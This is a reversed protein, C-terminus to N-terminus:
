SGSNTSAEGMEGSDGERRKESPRIGEVVDEKDEKTPGVNVTAYGHAGKTEIYAKIEAKLKSLRQVAYFMAHGPVGAAMCQKLEHINLEGLADILEEQTMGTMISRLYNRTDEYYPKKEEIM